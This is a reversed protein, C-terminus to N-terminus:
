LPITSEYCLKIAGHLASYNSLSDSSLSPIEPGGGAKKSKVKLIVQFISHRILFFLTCLCLIM